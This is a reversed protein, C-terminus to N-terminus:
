LGDETQCHEYFAEAYKAAIVTGLWPATNVEFVCTKNVDNLAIDVAGFDLGCSVIANAADTCLRDPYPTLNHRCYLWDDGTRVDPNVTAGIRRKKELVDITKGFAVNVRFERATDFGKTYFDFYPQIDEGMQFVKLGSGDAGADQRGYVKSTRGWRKATALDKTWDLTPVGAEEFCKFARQKYVSNMVKPYKNLIKHQNSLGLASGHGWNIIIDNLGCESPHMTIKANMTKALLQAGESTMKFPFVIFM